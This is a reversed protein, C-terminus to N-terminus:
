RNGKANRSHNEGNFDAKRKLHDVQAKLKTVLKAEEKTKNPKSKLAEYEAKKIEYQEQASAKAKQNAHPSNKGGGHLEQSIEEIDNATNIVGLVVVSGGHVVAASGLGVGVLSAGATEPAALLSAAAFGQGINMELGGAFISAVDGALQGVKYSIRLDRNYGWIHDEASKRGAGFVLNSGFSNVFGQFGTMFQNVFDLASGHTISIINSIYVEDMLGPKIADPCCGYSSGAFGGDPDIMGIPNNGMGLYPSAYQGYPDPSLWRGIRGDWLRLQFAEMQTEGDLEQGQFAYRYDSM